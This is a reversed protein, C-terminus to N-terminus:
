ELINGNICFNKAIKILKEANTKNKEILYYFSKTKESLHVKKESIYVEKLPKNNNYYYCGFFFSYNMKFLNEFFPFKKLKKLHKINIDSKCNYKDSINLNTILNEITSNKLFNFYKSTIKAKQKYDFKKFYQRKGKYLSKALDNILSIIFNLFHNQIKRTINDDFNSTHIKRTRPNKGKRGRRKINSKKEVNFINQAKDKLNIQNSNSIIQNNNDSEIEKSNSFYLQLSQGDQDNFINKNIFGFSSNDDFYKINNFDSSM